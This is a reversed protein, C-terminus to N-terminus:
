YHQHRIQQVSKLLKQALGYDPDGAQILALETEGVDLM